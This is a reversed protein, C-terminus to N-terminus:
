NYRRRQRILGCIQAQPCRVAVTTETCIADRSDGLEMSKKVRFEHLSCHQSSVNRQETMTLTDIGSLALENEFSGTTNLDCADVSRWYIRNVSIRHRPRYKTASKARQLNISVSKKM